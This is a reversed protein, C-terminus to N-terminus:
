YCIPTLLNYLNLDWYSSVHFSNEEAVRYGFFDEKAGFYKGELTYYPTWGETMFRTEMTDETGIEGTYVNYYLM